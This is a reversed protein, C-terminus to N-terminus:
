DHQVSPLRIPSCNTRGSLFCDQQNRIDVLKGTLWIGCAMLVLTIALALVNMLMRHGYDDNLDGREYKALDDVPTTHDLDSAPWHWRHPPVGRPRFRVVRGREEDPEVRGSITAPERLSRVASWSLPQKGGAVAM